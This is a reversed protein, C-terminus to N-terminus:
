LKKKKKKISSTPIWVRYFFIEKTPESDVGDATPPPRRGIKCNEIKRLRIAAVEGQKQLENIFCFYVNLQKEDNLIKRCRPWKEVRWEKLMWGRRDGLFRRM